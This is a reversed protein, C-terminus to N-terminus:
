ENASLQQDVVKEATEILVSLRLNLALTIRKLSIASPMRTGKGLYGIHQQSLGSRWGLENQSLGEETRLDTLVPGLAKGFAAIQKENFNM